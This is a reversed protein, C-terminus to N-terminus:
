SIGDPAHAADPSGPRTRRATARVGDSDKDGANGVPKINGPNGGQNGPPSVPPAECHKGYAPPQKGNKAGGPNIMAVVYQDDCRPPAAQATALSAAWFAAALAASGLTVTFPRM